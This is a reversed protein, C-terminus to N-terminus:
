SLATFATAIRFSPRSAVPPSSPWRRSRSAPRARAPALTRLGCRASRRARPKAPRCWADRRCRPVAGDPQPRERAARRAHEFAMRLVDVADRESGVAFRQHARTIVRGHPDPRQRSRPDGTMTVSGAASLATATAGSPSIAAAPASRRTDIEDGGPSFVLSISTAAMSDGIMESATEGSPASTAAAPMRPETAIMSRLLRLMARVSTPGPNGTQDTANKGSLLVNSVPPVSRM